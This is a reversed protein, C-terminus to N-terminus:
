TFYIQLEFDTDLSINDKMLELIYTKNTPNALTCLDEELNRITNISTDGEFYRFCLGMEQLVENELDNLEGKSDAYEQRAKEEYGYLQTIMETLDIQEKLYQFFLNEFSFRYHNFNTM